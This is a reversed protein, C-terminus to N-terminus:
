MHRCLVEIFQSKEMCGRCEQAADVGREKLEKRIQKMTWSEYDEPHCEEAADDEVDDASSSMMQESLWREADLAAASGSGASTVAQRYVWDAVDGAAFVGPVSCKTTGEATMLYDSPNMELQGKFLQTNPIHGIAVFAAEAALETVNAADHVDEVVVTALMGNDGGKFEKVTANWMVQIKANSLVAQQLVKSARLEDRRHILTVSSSTRALVLADEMATDGGGVVVVPKGSFLFGDCTACSSVGGGKLDEEGPVGLWRSDAGTAVVISHALVTSRNTTITFPRTSLDVTLAAEEEFTAAFRLAQKKMMKIIDGGSAEVIGPYNEVNVGKSMLQGGMAPAVVMPKLGARAAYIAATVGAPGGGVVALKVAKCSGADGAKAADEATCGELLKDRRRQNKKSMLEVEKEEVASERRYVEAKLDELDMKKIDVAKGGEEGKGEKKPAEAKKKKTFEPAEGYKKKLIQVLKYAPYKEYIEDVGDLKSPDHKKYFAELAGLSVEIDMAEAKRAIQAVAQRMGNEDAGSFQHELKGQVYFHFTPMSRIQVGVYSRQVDVKIFKVKGEYERALEKFKPAIMICPGCTQSFFDVAVAANNALAKKFAPETTIEEVDAAVSAVLACLWLRQLARVM